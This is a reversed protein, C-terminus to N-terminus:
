RAAEDTAEEQLRAGVPERIEVGGLAGRVTAPAGVGMIFAPWGGSMQSHAASAVLAGLLLAGLMVSVRPWLDFGPDAAGGPARWPWRYDNAKVAAM